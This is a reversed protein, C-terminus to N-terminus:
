EGFSAWIRRCQGYDKQAGLGPISECEQSFVGNSWSGPDM